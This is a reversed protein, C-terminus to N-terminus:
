DPSAHRRIRAEIYPSWHGAYRSQLDIQQWDDASVTGRCVGAGCRCGRWPSQGGWLAYDITLAEDPGIDRRTVLTVEDTFWVNPDCSHNM